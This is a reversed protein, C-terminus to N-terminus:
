YEGETGGGPDSVPCGPGTGLHYVFDDEASNHDAEDGNAETDDDVGEGDDDAGKDPDSIICGPGNSGQQYRVNDFATNIGDEDCQGSPDDEEDDEHVVNPTGMRHIPEYAHDRLAALKRAGRTHWEPWSPDGREQDPEMDGGDELDPDGDAMDLRAILADVALGITERTCEGEIKFRGRRRPKAGGKRPKLGIISLPARARPTRAIVQHQM